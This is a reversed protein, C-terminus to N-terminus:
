YCAMSTSIMERAHTAGTLLIAPKQGGMVNTQALHEKGLKGFDKKKDKDDSMDSVDMILNDDDQLKTQVFSKSSLLNDSGGGQNLELVNIDRGQLSKGISYVKIQDPFDNALDNM